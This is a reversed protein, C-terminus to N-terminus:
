RLDHFGHAKRKIVKIKNNVGELRRAHIPHDCHNLIGYRYRLLTKALNKVAPHDVAEAVHFLDFVIKVHPVTSQVALIYPYWMDMAIAELTKRDRKLM